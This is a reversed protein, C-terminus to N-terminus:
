EAVSPLQFRGEEARHALATVLDRLAQRFKMSALEVRFNANQIAMSGDPNNAALGRKLEFAERQASMAHQYEDRAANLRANLEAM